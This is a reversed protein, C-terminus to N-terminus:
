QSTVWLGHKPQSILFDIKSYVNKDAPMSIKNFLGLTYCIWFNLSNKLKVIIYINGIDILTCLGLCVAFVKKDMLKLM